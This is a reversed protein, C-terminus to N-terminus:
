ESLVSIKKKEPSIFVDNIKYIHPIQKTPKKADTKKKDKSNKRIKLRNKVSHTIFHKIQIMDDESIYYLNQHMNPIIEFISVPVIYKQTYHSTTFEAGDEDSNDKEKNDSM